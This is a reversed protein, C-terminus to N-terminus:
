DRRQEPITRKIEEPVRKNRKREDDDTEEPQTSGPYTTRVPSLIKAQRLRMM